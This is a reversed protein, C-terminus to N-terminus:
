EECLAARLQAKQVKGLANSPLEEVFVVRRPAKYGALHQCCFEIIAEATTQAERRPVIVATVREGWEEDPCGIVACQAVAPHETLV